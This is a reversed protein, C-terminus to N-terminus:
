AVCPTLGCKREVDNDHSFNSHPERNMGSANEGFSLVGAINTTSTLVTDVCGLPPALRIMMEAGCLTLGCTREVDDRYSFNGPPERNM